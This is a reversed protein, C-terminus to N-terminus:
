CGAEMAFLLARRETTAWGRIKRLGAESGCIQLDNSDSAPLNISNGIYLKETYGKNNRERQKRCIIAPIIWLSSTKSMLRTELKSAFSNKESIEGMFFYWSIDLLM